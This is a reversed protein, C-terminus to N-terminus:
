AKSTAIPNGCANCFRAASSSPAGCNACHVSGSQPMTPSAGSEQSPLGSLEDRLAGARSGKRDRIGKNIAEALNNLLETSSVKIHLGEGSHLSLVLSREITLKLFYYAGPLCLLGIVKWLAGGWALMALGIGAIIATGKWGTDVFPLAGGQIDDLRVVKSGYVFRETTVVFGDSEFIKSEGM